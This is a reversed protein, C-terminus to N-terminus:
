TASSVGPPRITQLEAAGVVSSEGDIGATPTSDSLEANVVWESSLPIGQRTSIRVDGSPLMETTAVGIVHDFSGSAASGLISGDCAQVPVLGGATAAM